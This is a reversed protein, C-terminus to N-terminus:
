AFSHALLSSQSCCRFSRPPCSRPTLLVPTPDRCISSPRPPSASPGAPQCLSPRVLVRPRFIAFLVSGFSCMSRSIMGQSVFRCMEVFVSGYVVRCCDAYMNLLRFSLVRLVRMKSWVNRPTSHADPTRLFNTSCFRMCANANFLASASNAAGRCHM